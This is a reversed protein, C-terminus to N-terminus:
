SVVEKLETVLLEVENALQNVLENLKSMEPNNGMLELELALKITRQASFNMLTGKLFHAAHRLKEPDNSQIAKYIDNLYISHDASFDKILETALELNNDCREMFSKRDFVLNSGLNDEVKEAKKPWHALSEIYKITEGINLPKTIYGDMGSALCREQDGKMAFATMAIILIHGRTLKEKERIKETAAIGDLVPMQVDMLVLDYHNTDLAGLAEAGNNVISVHHGRSELIAQALRQNILNDEALLINLKMRTENLSPRVVKSKQDSDPIPDGLVTLIADLLDSHRVPKTLYASIGLEKYLGTDAKRVASTLLIIKIDRHDPNDKIKQALEFGDMQPMLLDLIALSFSENSEKARRLADLAAFGNNVMTPKVDWGSLMEELIRRNTANDDVVLVRTGCLQGIKIPIVEALEENAISLRIHFHFTSGKGVESEVWIRGGMIAVLRSCITLGLGTGGYERTTSGDAQTFPEFIKRIKDKPIGIGTDRVKFHLVLEDDAQSSLQVYLVVEGVDTFKIANGILNVVVQGIRTPDGLLRDPVDPNIRYALELGKEHAKVALTKMMDGLSDRLKFNINDINLRGAEIKSFDLIDNILSALTDASIKIMELYERQDLSLETRLTLEAMGIIGNLPTRIEHSMNALFQSKVKNAIESNRKAESLEAETRKRATIDNIFVMMLDQSTVLVVSVQVDIVSGDSCRHKSEFRDWGQTIIHQIHTRIQEPSEIYEQDYIHMSLLAQRSYGTMACYANNVELIRGEMDVAWFGEMSTRILTQYREDSNRLLEEARKRETIDGAVGAYYNVQGTDSQVPFERDWIWRISGDPRIIRYEYEFSQGTRKIELNTFARGRDEPVIAEIFSKPDDYLSQATRGWLREYGPSVYLTRQTEVDGMWFVEEITGALVRFRRESEGLATEMRHRETIDEVVSLYTDAANKEATIRLFLEKGTLVSTYPGEYRRVGGEAIFDTLEHRLQGESMIVLLNRGLFYERQVGFIDAFYQNCDLVVGQDDLLILGIPVSEFVSRYKIGEERLGEEIQRRETIDSTVVRAVPIGSQGDQAVTAELRVWFQAGDRGVIRLECVQPMGTEFVKRGHDAYVHQDEPLIFRSLPQQPLENRPVGFWGAAMLNAELILGEESVTFYGVPAHDYLNFYRARSDELKAQTLRLEENQMELEIQHVRLEHLLQQAAEPWLTEQALAPIDRLAREEALRRLDGSRNPGHSEGQM